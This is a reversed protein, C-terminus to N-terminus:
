RKDKDIQSLFIIGVVTYFVAHCCLIGWQKWLNEQVYKYKKSTLQEATYDVVEERDLSNVIEMITEDNKFYLSTDMLLNSPLSNYDASTMISHVCWKSITFDSLKKAPGELNFAVGAFVLEVILLFPMVTMAATTTRVICSVMLAMMDAAFTSLFMTVGFDLLYSQFILGKQPFHMGMIQFIFICILVQILCLCAQYIVHAGIYSTIYMGARHERKIIGREKVVSQISNFFGNWICVCMVALAGIRTDEMTKFMGNVVVFAVLAAIIASIPLLKWDKEYLFMRLFKGLYIKTQLWRGAYKNEM